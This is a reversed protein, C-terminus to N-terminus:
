GWADPAVHNFKVILRARKHYTVRLLLGDGKGTAPKGM